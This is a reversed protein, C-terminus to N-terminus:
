DDRGVYRNGKVSRGGNIMMQRYEAQPIGTMQAAAWEFSKGDTFFIKSLFYVNGGLAILDNYARSLVGEKQEQTMPWEDLYTAEDKKFRERNEATMLSMCFQNLHYGKRSMQADFVTTGPIDTYPRELAM